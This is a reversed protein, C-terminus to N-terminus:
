YNKWNENKLEDENLSNLKNIYKNRGYDLIVEFDNINKNMGQPLDLSYYFEDAKKDINFKMDKLIHYHYSALFKRYDLVVNVINLIDKNMEIRNM